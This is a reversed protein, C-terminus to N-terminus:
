LFYISKRRRKTFTWRVWTFRIGLGFFDGSEHQAPLIADPVVRRILMEVNQVFFTRGGLTGGKDVGVWPTNCLAQSLQLLKEVKYM